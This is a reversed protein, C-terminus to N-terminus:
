KLSNLLRTSECLAENLEGIDCVIHAAGPLLMEIVKVLRENSRILDPAAAMAKALIAMDETDKMAAIVHGQECAWTKEGDEDEHVYLKADATAIFRSEHYPHMGAWVPDAVVKMSKLENNAKM